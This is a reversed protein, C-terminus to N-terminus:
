KVPTVTAGVPTPLSSETPSAPASAAAAKGADDTTVPASQPQMRALEDESIVEVVRVVKTVDNIGRAIEAGRKAERPTVIGMLFVV